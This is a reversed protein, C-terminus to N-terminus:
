PVIEMLESALLEGYIRHRLPSPHPDFSLTLAKEEIAQDSIIREFNPRLELSRIDWPRERLIWLRKKHKKWDKKPNITFYLKIGRDKCLDALQALARNPDYSNLRQKQEEIKPDVVAQWTLKAFSVASLMSGPNNVDRVFFPFGFDNEIFFVLVADPDFDLGSEAFKAVQQFTSYGPIGFNLVEFKVKGDAIRNLANEMVQAFSEEQEVGWGFAFSDGLLAIRMTGAPKTIPREPSRMGCSNTQVRARQFKLDLNPLMDFIIEDKPHPAVLGRLNGSEYEDQGGGPNTESPNLMARRLDDLSEFETGKPARMYFHLFVESAVLSLMVGFLILGLKAKLTLPQSSM